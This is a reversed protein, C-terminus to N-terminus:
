LSQSSTIIIISIIIIIIIHRNNAYSTQQSYLAFRTRRLRQHIRHRIHHRLAADRARPAQGARRGRQAQGACRVTGAPADAALAWGFDITGAATRRRM